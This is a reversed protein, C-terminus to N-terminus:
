TFLARSTKLNISSSALLCERFTSACLATEIIRCYDLVCFLTKQLVLEIKEGLRTSRIEIKEVMCLERYRLNQCLSEVTCKVGDLRM